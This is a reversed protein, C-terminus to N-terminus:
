KGLKKSIFKSILEGASKYVGELRVGTDFDYGWVANGYNIVNDATIKALVKSKDSTLVLTAIGNLSASKRTIGINFGPEIFTTNFILTYKSDAKSTIDFKGFGEVFKPELRNPRDSKWDQEWKDGKGMEKKNYESKKKEIYDKEDAFKGVRVEDYAFEFNLTTQDKLDDVSGSIMKIGRQGFVSFTMALLLPLVLKKM